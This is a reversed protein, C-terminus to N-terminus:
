AALKETEFLLENLQARLQDNVSMGVPFQLKYHVGGWVLEFGDNCRASVCYQGHNHCPTQKGKWEVLRM